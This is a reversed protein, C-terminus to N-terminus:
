AWAEGLAHLAPFLWTDVVHEFSGLAFGADLTDGTAALDMRLAARLFEDHDTGSGTTRAGSPPPEPAAEPPVEGERVARAAEAPSWGTDVLRRMTSLAAVADHDYVRYGSATRRPEVVGYRREWARLSAETVGTLRSAQKITYM